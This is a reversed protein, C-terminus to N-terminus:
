PASEEQGDFEAKVLSRESSRDRVEGDLRAALLRDLIQKFMPGPEFGMAKLDSGTLEPRVKQLTTLYQNVSRKVWERSAKAMIFIQYEPKLGHLLSYVLSPTPRARQLQNLADLAARRMGIIENRLKPALSLRMCMPVLEDDSLNDVLALFYLVWQRIPKDLFSLQYWALSDEIEEWLPLDKDAVKLKPHFERLLKLEMLRKICDLVREEDLIQKLENFLRNGSLRLFAEIKIANKILGETLKGIRFGFRQEFRVARFVRTPDEVFSLNHLVRIVKEKIDRMGDFFDFLQGFHKPNLRVALTNITFDRRYLDLKISSLEVTPLSAPSKYYELRATAVDIVLGDEWILKGTNFKKHIRTRVEPREEAFKKIFAVGDGEIVVDLDLNDRRLFVDRVSGGVLYASFGMEEAVQGMEILTQLVHRPFRERMLGKVSKFRPQGAELGAQVPQEDMLPQDFFHHLLDTRTIVGVLRGDDMVAVLRQREAVLAQEVQGLGADPEIAIVRTDMYETVPLDELKHVLAKEVNPRQIVGIVKGDSMIPLADLDYRILIDHANSLTDSSDVSVVPSTMLDAARRSPNIRTQLVTKLRDRAEVLTMDRMTASAATPHGGGGLAKAIIGVDVEPLRSRAVLYVRGEMRALAFLVNLNDMDMFKHVLVAFDPVYRERSVESIAVNIGNVVVEQASRILDNLLGVEEATLERTILSSVVNLNAGQGLLWAGAQYDAQTTSSFTFSGTDEYIGLSLITAEDENLEVGREQLLRSLMSVTAGVKEVMQMDAKVDTDSDPHHDYAHIEVGPDDALRSLPGIRDKQRTDVLILRKVREFPVNKVKVFNYFYCVSEVYFNRLNREQAGPFVLMAGPYLKSAAMMSALADFDANVHTTIVEVDRKVEFQETKKQKLGM